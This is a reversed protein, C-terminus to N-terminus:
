THAPELSFIEDPRLLALATNAGVVDVWLIWDPQDLNVKRDMGAALQAVIESTHYRQWRRKHVKMGWTEDANIRPKLQEQIVKRVADLDTACWYDVPVWKVAFQFQPGTRARERCRRIVDRSDLGTHVVAIGAVATKEMTAGPDGFEKLVHLAERRAPSFHNWSYSVIIDMDFNTDLRGAPPTYKHTASGRCTAKEQKDLFFSGFLLVGRIARGKGSRM